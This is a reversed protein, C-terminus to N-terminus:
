YLSLIVFVEDVFYFDMQRREPNLEVEAMDM